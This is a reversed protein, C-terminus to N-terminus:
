SSYVRYICPMANLIIIFDGGSERRGAAANETWNEVNTIEIQMETTGIEREKGAGIETEDETEVM